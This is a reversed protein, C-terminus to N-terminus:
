STDADVQFSLWTNGGLGDHMEYDVLRALRRVSRRQTATEFYAEHSIRDQYYAFEDGVASMVEAMMIGFDAELRDQWDPHRASAFDLLAQRISWFDRAMYNVPYDTLQDPPCEQSPTACDLDSACNAKFSFDAEAFYPDVKPNAPDSDSLRLKYRSFDGAESTKLHLVRRGLHTEWSPPFGPELPVNALKDDGSPSYITIQSSSVTGLIVDPKKGYFFVYLHRQNKEAQFQGDDVYVFDIGVVTASNKALEDIRNIVSM